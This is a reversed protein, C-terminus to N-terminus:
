RRLGPRRRAPRSDRRHGPGPRRGRAGRGPGNACADATGKGPASEVDLQDSMAQMFAFGLGLHGDLTSHEPRRAAELDAIGRGHDRVEVVVGEDGPLVLTEVEIEGGAEGYAHLVANSVAESTAIRLEEVEPLTFPLNAAITVVVARAVAVNEELALLVLLVRNEQRRPAPM